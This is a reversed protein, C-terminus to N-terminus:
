LKKRKRFMVERLVKEKLFNKEEATDRKTVCFNLFSALDYKRLYMFFLHM